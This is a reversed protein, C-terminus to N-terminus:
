DSGLFSHFHYHFSTDILPESLYFLPDRHMRGLPTQIWHQWRVETHKGLCVLPFFVDFADVALSNQRVPSLFINVWSNKLERFIIKSITTKGTSKYFFSLLLAKQQHSSSADFNVLTGQERGLLAGQM